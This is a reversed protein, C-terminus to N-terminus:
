SDHECCLMWNRRPNDWDWFGEFLCLLDLTTNTYEPGRFDVQYHVDAPRWFSAFATKSVSTPFPQVHLDRKGKGSSGVSKIGLARKGGQLTGQWLCNPQWDQYSFYFPLLSRQTCSFSGTIRYFASTRQYDPTTHPIDSHAQFLEISCWLM